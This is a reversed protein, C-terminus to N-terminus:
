GARRQKQKPTAVLPIAKLALILERQVAIATGFGDYDRAVLAKRGMANIEDFRWKLARWKRRLDTIELNAPRETVDNTTYPDCKPTTWVHGCGDCRYYDVVSGQSSQELFRGTRGCQPCHSKPM